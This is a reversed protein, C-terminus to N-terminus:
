YRYRKFYQSGDCVPTYMMASINIWTVKRFDSLLLSCALLKTRPAQHTDHFCSAEANVAAGLKDALDAPVQCGFFHQFIKFLLLIMLVSPPFPSMTIKQRGFLNPWTLKTLIKSSYYIYRNRIKYKQM